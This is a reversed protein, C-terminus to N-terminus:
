EEVEVELIFFQTRSLYFLRSTSLDIRPYDTIVVNDLSKCRAFACRMTTVQSFDWGSLRVDVLAKCNYFLYDMNVVTSTNFHSLDIETINNCCYFMRYFSSANIPMSPEAGCSERYHLYGNGFKDYDISYIDSDYLVWNQNGTSEKFWEFHKRTKKNIQSQVSIRERLSDLNLSYTDNDLSFTHLKM